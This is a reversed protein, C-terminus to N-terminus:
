HRPTWLRVKRQKFDYDEYRCIRAVQANRLAEEESLGARLYYSVVLSWPDPAPVKKWEVRETGKNPGSQLIRLTEEVMENEILARFARERGMGPCGPYGDVVDGALAQALHFQDAEQETVKFVESTKLDVHLGPVTKLDKDITVIIKEGPYMRPHTALIGLVDDAELTPREFTEYTARIYDKVSDLALPRRVDRRNSKYEPMVDHRWNVVDTMAVVVHDADLAEAIDTLREDFNGRAADRDAANTSVGDDWHCVTEAAAAAAYAFVDGDILLTRNM